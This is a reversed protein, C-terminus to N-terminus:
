MQDTHSLIFMFSCVDFLCMDLLSQVVDEVDVVGCRSLSMILLCFRYM